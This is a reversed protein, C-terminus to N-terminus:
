SAAAVADFRVAFESDRAAQKRVPRLQNVTRASRVAGELAALVRLGEAAAGSQDGAATLASALSAQYLARNRAPLGPDSLVDQFLGAARSGHGLAVCAMAQTCTIESPTVWATWYPDSPHDGRDLERQAVTMHTRVEREDGLLGYARARRMAIVVHVKPSPEHRAASVAQDLFRLAERALGTRADGASAALYLSQLALLSYTDATVLPGAAGAALLAAETLLGRALTQEAADFAIFGAGAALEATVAQLEDGVTSTYSSRDLIARATAYHARAERLLASGGVRWDSSCLRAAVHRLGRVHEASVAAPVSAPPILGGALLGIATISFERRNVPDDGDRGDDPSSASSVPPPLPGDALDDPPIGLARAYLLIYRETVSSNDRERRRIARVLTDHDPLHDDGAARRLQRATEPM